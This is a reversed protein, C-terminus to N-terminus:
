DAFFEAITDQISLAAGRPDAAERVPRGVVLYDAGAAFAQQPTVVRRQDDRRELPRIGPAVVLFGEGVAERLARAEVGSAVVGDCGHAVVRRARSVVLKEIPREIGLDRFDDEDLSTLATVALLALNGKEKCAAEVIAENGHVTTMQAGRGALQRVAAAVTAPIDFFKLDVFVKKDADVLRDLLEFYRGAMFLELGIKYFGVADGLREVLALAEAPTPLDLAVILRDRQAIDRRSATSPIDPAGGLSM